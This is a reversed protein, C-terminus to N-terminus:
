VIPPNSKYPHSVPLNGALGLQHALYGEAKEISTMGCAIVASLNGRFFTVGDERTGLWVQNSTDGYITLPYSIYNIGNKRDYCVGAKLGWALITPATLTRMDAFRSYISQNTGDGALITSNYGDLPAAKNGNEDRNAPRAEYTTAAGTKQLVSVFFLESPFTGAPVPCVIGDDTGDFILAPYGNLGTSSYGPRMSATSQTAHYGNGSKDNWQQVLSSGDLVLTTPDFSELWLPCGDDAPNWLRSLDHHGALVRLM